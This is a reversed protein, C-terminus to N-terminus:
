KLVFIGSNSKFGKEMNRQETWHCHCCVLSKDECSMFLIPNWMLNPGFYSFFHVFDFSNPIGFDLFLALMAFHFHYATLFLNEFFMWFLPCHFSKHSLKWKWELPTSNHKRLCHVVDPMKSCEHLFFFVWGFQLKCLKKKLWFLFFQEHGSLNKKSCKRLIWKM